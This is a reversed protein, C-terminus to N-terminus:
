RYRQGDLRLRAKGRPRRLPSCRGGRLRRWPYRRRLGYHRTLNGAPVLRALYESLHAEGPFPEHADNITAVTDANIDVGVVQHGKSAFQAALPLGIKGM